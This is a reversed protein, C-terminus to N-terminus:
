RGPIFRWRTTVEVTVTEQGPQVPTESAQAADAKAMMMMPRPPPAYYAGITLELLSGLQGQAARAGVEAEARAVQVAATIAAQRAQQINSAYFNLSSILNAGAGLAADIVAGVKALDRVEAVITNTASYGIITPNRNPEYRYEPHVTYNATSLQDDSLGLKRLADLVARQRTANAAGAAGATAARTQVSIQINARDPSIKTEGRGVVTIQPIPENTVQSQAVVPALLVSIALFFRKM